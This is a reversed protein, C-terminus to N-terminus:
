ARKRWEYFPERDESFFLSGNDYHRLFDRANQIPFWEQWPGNHRKNSLVCLQIKDTTKYTGFLFGSVFWAHSGTGRFGRPNISGVIPYYVPDVGFVQKYAQLFSYRSDRERESDEDAVLRRAIDVPNM